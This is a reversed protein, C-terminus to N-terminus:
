ILPESARHDRRPRHLPRAGRRRHARQHLCHRRGGAPGATRARARGSRSPRVQQDRGHLTTRSSCGPLGRGSGGDARDIGPADGVILAGSAGKIYVTRFIAMGFDGDTDWLTLQTPKTKGPLLVTTTYIDVGITAKYSTEFREFALRNALSTKGVGIAGLIMIKRAAMGSCEGAYALEFVVRRNAAAAVADSIPSPARTSVVALRSAPLGLHRLVNAVREARDRAAETNGKPTGAGDGFGVIRM